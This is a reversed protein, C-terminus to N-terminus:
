YICNHLISASRVLYLLDINLDIYARRSGNYGLQEQCTNQGRYLISYNVSFQNLRINLEQENFYYDYYKQWSLFLKSQLKNM